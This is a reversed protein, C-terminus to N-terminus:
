SFRISVFFFFLQLIAQQHLHLMREPNGAPGHCVEWRHRPEPILTRHIRQPYDLSRAAARLMDQKEMRGLYLVYLIKKAGAFGFVLSCPQCLSHHNRLSTRSFLSACPKWPVLLTPYTYAQQGFQCACHFEQCSPYVANHVRALTGPQCACPFGQYSLHHHSNM